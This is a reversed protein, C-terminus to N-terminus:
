EDEAEAMRVGTLKVEVGVDYIYEKGDDVLIVPIRISVANIDSSHLKEVFWELPHTPITRAQPEQKRTM